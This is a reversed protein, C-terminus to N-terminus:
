SGVPRIFFEFFKFSVNGSLANHKTSDFRFSFAHESKKADKSSGTLGPFGSPLLVLAAHPVRNTSEKFACTM